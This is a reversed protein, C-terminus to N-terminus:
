GDLGPLALDLLILSPVEPALLVDLADRGDAIPLFDINWDSLYNGVQRREVISDEVLMVRM